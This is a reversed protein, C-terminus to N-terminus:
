APPAIDLRAAMWDAAFPRHRYIVNACGHNGQDLVRVETAGRAEHALREGDHWSFLRDLKGSIVLLPATISTTHGELTLERARAAAEEPSSSWSRVEFARRTLENLNEWASAFSYPGSLVVTARIPLDASALRAAYYGGLSVGWVGIRAVDVQEMTSLHEIIAEGVHSWDARIPFTAEAEGQGPGDLALTAMGREHFAREVERFEEKTSDLGAILIVTPHPGVGGPTRFVGALSSGEFAIEERSAYTSFLPIARTLADVARRHAANAQIPDHVFLFKAFHFYTSARAFFEGASHARGESQAEEGLAAHIDAGESWAACWDDWRELNGTIRNFDSADVGNSTFRPGWNSVATELLVDVM